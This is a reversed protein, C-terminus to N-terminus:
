KRIDHYFLFLLYDYSYSFNTVDMFWMLSILISRKLLLQCYGKHWICLWLGLPCTYSEWFGRLNWNAVLLLGPDNRTNARSCAYTRIKYINTSHISLCILSSPSPLNRSLLFPFWQPHYDLSSHLHNFLGSVKQGKDRHLSPRHEYGDGPTGAIGSCTLDETDAWWQRLPQFGRRRICTNLLNNDATM